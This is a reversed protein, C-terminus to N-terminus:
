NSFLFLVSGGGPAGDDDGEAGIALDLSGDGDADFFASMVGATDNNDGEYLVLAEDNVDM